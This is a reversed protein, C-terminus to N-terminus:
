IIKTTTERYLTNLLLVAKLEEATQAWARSYGACEWGHQLMEINRQTVVMHVRVAKKKKKEKLDEKEKNGKGFFHKGWVHIQNKGLWMFDRSHRLAIPREASAPGPLQERACASGWVPELM